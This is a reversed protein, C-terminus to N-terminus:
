SYQIAKKISKSKYVPVTFYFSTGKGETSEVKIDLNHVELIKKVIALGLGLGQKEKQETRKGQNYRDFIHPLEKSNIGVGNDTVAVLVDEGQSKLNIIIRGGGPTFKIANDLLNQVVKEIMGIDAFVLPLDYPFQLLLEIKKSEAIILNKQQIDQILEAISFAEPNPKTERAELKSLEFLEEVLKKLRETSGWIIQMYNKKEEDTLSDAKLLITEIYGQVTALPTRLDHSVNAVLERRLKDMTKIEEINAAITDAMENFSDAFEKLEGRGKVKIRANINGNKFERIVSIIKRINKTIFGLVILSIIAAAILTIGMSRIGLRLIYSGFVLNATNEYEEGGLIVYIYGMLKGDQIVQAASFVKERDKNKPDAGLVFKSEKSNIFEKIPYLPVYKLSITKNPAYYTLIKGDKDLLYVELSPNIIMVNHFVNKLAADNAKGNIFCENESAIHPAIDADLKQNAEQFYMEATYLAIYSYACSLIFLIILFAASIKWYLSNFFKKKM